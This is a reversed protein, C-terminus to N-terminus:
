VDAEGGVTVENGWSVWGPYENRAFLEVKRLDPYMAEIMDYVEYPKQSHARRPSEIVSVFRNEPDPAPMDGRVAIMLMEHQQRTYYGQGMRDKVWVFNTRYNFGWSRIVEVAEGMKPNPCWLFLICRSMAIEDIPLNKIEDLSMTPYVNEIDQRGPTGHEYRWPPDAYIVSFKGLTNLPTVTAQEAKKMKDMKEVKREKGKVREYVQNISTAGSRLDKLQQETAVALIKRAKRMTEHSVGAIKALVKDTEIPEGLIQSGSQGRGRLKGAEIQNQKAKLAIMEKMKLALECRSWANLNRRALQNRAIWEKAEERSAFCRETTDFEIGHRQCIEYRNHGDIIVGDWVVLADRCGESLISRELENYQEVALKSILDRFETDMRLNM